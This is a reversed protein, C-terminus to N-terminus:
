VIHLFIHRYWGVYPQSVTVCADGRWAVCCAYATSYVCTTTYVYTTNYCPEIDITLTQNINSASLTGNILWLYHGSVNCSNSDQMLNCELVQSSGNSVATVYPSPAEFGYFV